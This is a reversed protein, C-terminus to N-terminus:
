RKTLEIVATILSEPAEWNLSHGAEEVWVLSAGPIAAALRTSHLPPTTRDKRGCIVTTPIRIESLRPYRDEEIFAHLIPLVPGHNQRLFVELFARIEAPSPHDGCLSAGFLM